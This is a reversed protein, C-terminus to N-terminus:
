VSPLKFDVSGFEVPAKGKFNSLGLLEKGAVMAVLAEKAHAIKEKLELIEKDIVIIFYADVENNERIWVMEEYKRTFKVKDAKCSKIIYELKESAMRIYNNKKAGNENIVMMMVNAVVLSAAEKEGIIDTDKGTEDYRKRKATDKLVEYAHKMNSFELDAGPDNPNKDPHTVSANKRYAKKIESLTADRSVGLLDYLSTKM